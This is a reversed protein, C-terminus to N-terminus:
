FTKNIILRRSNFRKRQAFQNRYCFSLCKVINRALSITQWCTSKFNQHYCRKVHLEIEATALGYEKSLIYVKDHIQVM